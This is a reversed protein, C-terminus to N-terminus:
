KDRKFFKDYIMLGIIGFIAMCIYIIATGKLNGDTLFHGAVTSSLVSPIRAVLSIIMFDKLSISTLPMFYTLLDKPTGPLFYLVFTLKKVKKTDRLFSFRKIAKKDLILDVVSQGWVSVIKFILFQGCFIGAMCIFFGGFSGYILGSAFEIVEGPILAVIIQLIQIFFLLLIGTIGYGEVSKALSDVSEFNKFLPYLLFSLILM